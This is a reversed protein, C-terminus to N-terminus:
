VIVLVENFEVVHLPCITSPVDSGHTSHMKSGVMTGGKGQWMSAEMEM